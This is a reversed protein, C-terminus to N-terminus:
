CLGGYHGECGPRGLALDQTEAKHIYFSFFIFFIEMPFQNFSEGRGRGNQCLPARHEVSIFSCIM